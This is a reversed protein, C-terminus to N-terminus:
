NEKTQLTNNTLIDELEKFNYDNRLEFDNFHNKPKTKQESLQVVNTYDKYKGNGLFNEPYTIFKKNFTPSAIDDLYNDLSTIILKPDVHEVFVLYAFQKRAKEKRKDDKRLSPYKDWFLSFYDDIEKEKNEKEKIDIYRDEIYRLPCQELDQGLVHGIDSDSSMGNNYETIIENSLDSVSQKYPKLSNKSNDLVELVINPSNDNKHGSYDKKSDTDSIELNKDYSKHNQQGLDDGLVHGLVFNGNQEWEALKKENELRQKEAKRRENRALSDKNQTCIENGVLQNFNTIYLENNENYNFLELDIFLQVTDTVDQETIYMWNYKKAFSESNFKKKIKGIQSILIGDSNLYETLITLYIDIYTHAKEGYEEFIYKVEDSRYFSARLKMWTNHQVGM